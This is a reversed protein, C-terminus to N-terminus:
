VNTTFAPLPYVVGRFPSLTGQVSFMLDSDNAASWSGDYLCANGGHTNDLDIMYVNMFNDVDGGEYEISVCYDGAPLQIINDLTFFFVGSEPTIEGVNVALSTALATGTPVSSTGYTGSHEYLKSYVNGTPTGTLAAYFITGGIEFHVDSHFSQALKTYGGTYMAYGSGGWTPEYNDIEIVSM